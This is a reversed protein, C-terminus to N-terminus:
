QPTLTRTYNIQFRLFGATASASFVRLDLSAGAAKTGSPLIVFGSGNTFSWTASTIVIEYPLSAVLVYIRVKPAEIIGSIFEVVEFPDPVGGGGGGAPADAAEYRNNAASWYAMQGDTPPTGGFKALGIEGLAKPEYLGTVSNYQALDEDLEGGVDFQALGIEALAKPEYLGSASSFQPLDFAEAGVDFLALQAEALSKPEYKEITANYQIIDKDNATDVEDDITEAQSMTFTRSNGYGEYVNGFADTLGGGDLFKFVPRSVGPSMVLQPNDALLPKSDPVQSGINQPLIPRRLSADINTM